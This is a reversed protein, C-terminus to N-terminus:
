PKGVMKRIETLVTEVSAPDLSDYYGHIRGQRDVIVFKSSHAIPMDANGPDEEVALKFGQSAITWIKERPGSLWLWRDVDADLQKAKAALVEPTDNEPDVTFSVLLVDEAGPMTLVADQIQKARANMVPCVGLCRTFTFSALWIKGSLERSHITRGSRETLEFVPAAGFDNATQSSQTAAPSDDGALRARNLAFMAIMLTTLLSVGALAIVLPIM